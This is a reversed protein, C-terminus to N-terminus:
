PSNQGRLWLAAVRVQSAERPSQAESQELLQAVDAVTAPEPPGERQPGVPEGEDVGLLANRSMGVAIRTAVPLDRQAAIEALLILASSRTRRM